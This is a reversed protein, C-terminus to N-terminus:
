VSSAYQVYYKLVKKVYGVTTKFPPVGGYKVVNGEGAHYGAITLIVDGEFMNALIRLYRVGGLINQRPDFPKEVGMRDATGPMLQMLGQAGCVSVVNPDYDSEVRIVARILPEPI